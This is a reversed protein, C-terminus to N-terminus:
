SRTLSSINPEHHIFFQTTHSFRLFKKRLLSACALPIKIM